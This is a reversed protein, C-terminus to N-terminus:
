GEVEFNDDMVEDAALDAHEVSRSSIEVAMPRRVGRIGVSPSRLLEMVSDVDMMEGEGDGGLQGLLLADQEQQSRMPVAPDPTPSTLDLEERERAIRARYEEPTFLNELFSLPFKFRCIPCSDRHNDFVMVTLWTKLCHSGIVQGCCIVLRLPTEKAGDPSEVGMPDQCIPCDKSDHELNEVEVEMFGIIERELKRKKQIVHMRDAMLLGLVVKVGYGTSKIFVTNDKIEGFASPSKGTEMKGFREEYSNQFKQLYEMILGVHEREKIPRLGSDEHVKDLMARAWHKLLKRFIYLVNEGFKGLVREETPTLLGYVDSSKQIL